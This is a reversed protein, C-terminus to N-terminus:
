AEVSVSVRGLGRHRHSGVHRVLPAAVRLAEIWRGDDPGEVMAVLTLPVAAEITRLSGTTAIGSEDIRTSALLTVFADLDDSAATGAAWATWGAGLTASDFRLAGPMTRYRGEESPGATADDETGPLASGFLLEPTGREVRGCAEALELAHRLLGKVTRGPLYPLGQPTRNIVADAVSDAGRGTGAHWWSLIEFRITAHM